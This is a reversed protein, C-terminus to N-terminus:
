IRAKSEFRYRLYWLQFVCVIVLLVVQFISYWQVRENTSEATDRHARERVRTYQQDDKLARINNLLEVIEADLAKDEGSQPQTTASEKDDSIIDFTVLKKSVPSFENIFCYQHRGNEEAVFSYTESNTRSMTFRYKGSPDKLSFDIDHNGGEGVEFSIGFRKGVSLDEFFCLNQAAELLISYGAALKVLRLSTTPL